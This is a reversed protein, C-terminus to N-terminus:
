RNRLEKQLWFSYILQEKVKKGTLRELAQGYYQLQVGYKKLLEEEQDDKVFDTKYDVLVIGDAEYFYADIIGQVLVLDDTNWSQRIQSASVGLVFQQERFLQGSLSAAKMRQGIKSKLFGVVKKCDIIGVEEKTMKGAGRLLERQKKVGQENAEQGYDLYEMFKHYVTGKAAGSLPEQEQIFKPILPVVDPEEYVRYEDIIDTDEMQRLSKLESVAIKGYIDMSDQWPYVSTFVQELHERAEVQYIKDVDWNLLVEKTWLGQLQSDAEWQALDGINMVLIGYPAKGDKRNPTEEIPVELGLENLFAEGVPHHLLAPMVWDLYSSAGTLDGFSISEGGGMASQRWKKVGNELKRLAGTLILKEKARTMAVYLVRLEEGLNEYLTQRQIIKKLLTPAKVRYDSDIYDCGLGLDPHLVLKSRSDQQNFKKNLGSAFVIPFELGKSKHISMIRVTDDEEGLTSAEGYDVDYKKLQEIYRIFNFLGRYSTSEYAMAKEVLMNINATRQEGGPMAAAYHGYETNELIYWLLEHMTTYPVRSRFDQIMKLFDALKEGLDRDRGEESYRVCAEWYPQEQYSSKIEALDKDKLGAVPSRLVAALPIEQRPNDVVKLISLVTQIEVASFYGSQSGTYAPIGMRSLVASVTDAWGSVTRLLIIMDSYKAPRYAKTEKDLVLEKGVLELIRRGIMRAELEIATEGSEEVAEAETELDLLLVETDMEGEDKGEPFLAGPYLAAEDNYEINGLKMTMIQRFIFNIGSLVQSRSRFNKHLEIKQKNSDESTYSAYKDMFIEPRALRFRYISQKVDGVMFINNKGQSQKSVSTLLYEQVLNSDQYEDIMIEEFIEAFEEAVETPVPKGEEEKVLINLALHELDNFDLLNKERKEASFRDYFECVLNILVEVQERSGKMDEAIQDPSAYFYQEGISKVSKKILDRIDKVQEKKQESVSVDKKASLRAFKGINLFCKAYDSYTVSLGINEIMKKDSLLAEEYMYPGEPSRCIVLANQIKELIDQILIRISELLPSMWVAKSLEDENEIYYAKKCDMLWKKPWPYSMSFDYLSLILEKLEKDTKGTAYCEVFTLYSAEKKDYNEELLDEAVDSRLLKIEGEDGIRFSPDLDIVHFYNRIVHQCFSHITTIQAHHVLTLQRQLHENEPEEELKKEIATRIREKMEGAAANTFTVILLRDIDVPHVKDIIKTIIREVLVATKGSGAAASVLINRNRLDIVQKQEETWNVKM